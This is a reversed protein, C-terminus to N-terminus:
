EREVTVISEMLGLISAGIGLGHVRQLWTQWDESTKRVNRVRPVGSGRCGFRCVTSVTNFGYKPRILYPVSVTLSGQCLPPYLIEFLPRPDPYSSLVLVHWKRVWVLSMKERKIFNPPEGLLPPPPPNHVM